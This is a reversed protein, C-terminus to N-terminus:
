ASLALLQGNSLNLRLALNRAIWRHFEAALKANSNELADLKEGDLLILESRKDALITASRKRHTYFAMEGVTAGPLIIALLFENETGYAATVSLHGEMLIFIDRSQSGDTIIIDGKEYTIKEVLSQFASGELFTILDMESRTHSGIQSADQLVFDEARAIAQALIPTHEFVSGDEQMATLRRPTLGSLILSVPAVDCDSQIRKLIYQASIDLGSVSKFDLVLWRLDTEEALLQQVKERLAQSTGFFIFTSLELIKAKGRADALTQLEPAPREVRSRKTSVDSEIRVIELRSYEVIIIASSLLLGVAIATLFGITVATFPIAL